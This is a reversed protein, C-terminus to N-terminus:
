QGAYRSGRRDGGTLRWNGGYGSGRGGAAGHNGGAQCVQHMHHVVTSSRRVGCQECDVSQSQLRLSDSAWSGRPRTTLGFAFAKASRHTRVPRTWSYRWAAQDVGTVAVRGSGHEMRPLLMDSSWWSVRDYVGRRGAVSSGQCSMRWRM